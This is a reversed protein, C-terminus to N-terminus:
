SNILVIFEHNFGADCVRFTVQWKDKVLNDIYNKFAKEFRDFNIKPKTVVLYFDDSTALVEEVYKVWHMKIENPLKQYNQNNIFQGINLLLETELNEGSVQIWQGKVEDIVAVMKEELFVNFPENRVEQKLGYLHTEGDIDYLFNLTIM